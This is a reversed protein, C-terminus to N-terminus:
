KRKVVFMKTRHCCGSVFDCWYVGIGLRGVDVPLNYIGSELVRNVPQLVIRSESNYIRIVTQGTLGVSFDLKMLDKTVPNPNINNFSYNCGSFLM